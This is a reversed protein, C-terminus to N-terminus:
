RRIFYPIATLTVGVLIMAYTTTIFYPFIFLGIGVLLPVIAKQKKGYSFYGIGLGGFIVSWILQTSEDM